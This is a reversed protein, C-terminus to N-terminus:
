WMGLSEYQQRKRLLKEDDRNIKLVARLYGAAAEYDRDQECVLVLRKLVITSM